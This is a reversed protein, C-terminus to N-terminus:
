DKKVSEEAAPPFWEAPAGAKKLVQEISVAAGKNRGSEEAAEALAYVELTQLRNVPSQRTQFFKVIERLLPTPDILLTQVASVDGDFRTMRFTPAGEHRLMLTGMRGDPWIGVVSAFPAAGVRTVSSCGPGMLATLAAVLHLTDGFMEPRDPQTPANGFALVGSPKSAGNLASLETIGASWRLPSASFLPTKAMEARKFIEVVQKLSAAVPQNVFFPKGSAIIATAQDLRNSAETSLLLVADVKSLADDVSEAIRVGYKDRLTATVAQVRAEVDEVASGEGPFAAVIRGGSVHSPDAPDNLRQTFLEANPNDLGILGIRISEPQVNQSSAVGGASSFAWCLLM